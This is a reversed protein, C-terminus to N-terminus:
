HTMLVPLTSHALIHRTVGGFIFQELRSHGYGGMILLDAGCELSQELLAAGASKDKTHLVASAAEVGHVALYAKPSQLAPSAASEAESSLLIIKQAQKLIPLAAIIASSAEVSDNWGIAITKGLGPSARQPRMLVPRRAGILAAEFASAAQPNTTVDGVVVLDALKAARITTREISGCLDVYRASLPTLLDNPGAVRIGVKSAELALASKASAAAADSATKAAKYVDEVLATSLGDSVFPIADAPDPRLFVGEVSAQQANALALASAIAGQDCLGGTLLVVIRSMSM